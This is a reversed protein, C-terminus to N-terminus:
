KDANRLNITHCSSITGAEQIYTGTGWKISMWKEGRKETHGRAHQNKNEYIQMVEFKECYSAPNLVM